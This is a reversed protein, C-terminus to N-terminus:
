RGSRSLLDVKEIQIARGAAHGFAALESSTAATCSGVKSWCASARTAAPAQGALSSYTWPSRWGSDIEAPDLDRDGSAQLAKQEGGGACTRNMARPPVAVARRQRSSIM